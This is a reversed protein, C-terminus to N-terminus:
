RTPEPGRGPFLLDLCLDRSTHVHRLSVEQAVAVDGSAIAQCLEEHEAHLQTPDDNQRLLWHLRGELPELMSALLENHAMATIQDHFAQNCRGIERKDSAQIAAESADLTARLRRLEDTGARETAQRVALVELAERVDFLERVDHESVTTVVVGKRPIETVFGEGRLQVLADRVPVRSVGLEEALTREVLRSGPALAGSVIRERLEDAVQDRLSRHAAGLTPGAPDTRHAAM